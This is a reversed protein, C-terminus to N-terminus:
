VGNRAASCSDQLCGDHSVGKREVNRCPFFRDFEGGADVPDACEVWGQASEVNYIHILSLSQDASNNMKVEYSVMNLAMACNISFSIAM